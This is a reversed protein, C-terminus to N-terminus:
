HPTMHAASGHGSKRVDHVVVVPAPQFGDPLLWCAIRLLDNILERM